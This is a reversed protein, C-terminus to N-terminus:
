KDLQDPAIYECAVVEYFNMVATIMSRQEPTRAEWLAQWGGPNPAQEEFLQEAVLSMRIFDGDFLQSLLEYVRQRQASQRQLRLQEKLDGLQDHQLKLQERVGQLSQFAIVGAWIAAAVLGLTAVAGVLAGVNALTSAYVPAM